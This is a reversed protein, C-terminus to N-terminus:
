RLSRWYWAAEGGAWGKSAADGLTSPSVGPKKDHTLNRMRMGRREQVIGAIGHWGGIRPREDWVSVTGAKNDYGFMGLQIRFVTASGGGPTASLRSRDRM